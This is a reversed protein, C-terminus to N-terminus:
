PLFNLTPYLFHPELHNEYSATTAEKDAPLRAVISTWHPPAPNMGSLELLLWPSFLQSTPHLTVLSCSFHPPLCPPTCDRRGQGRTGVSHSFVRVGGQYKKENRQKGMGRSEAARGSTWLKVYGEREEEGEKGVRAQKSM